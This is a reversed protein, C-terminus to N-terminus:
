MTNSVPRLASTSPVPMDFRLARRMAACLVYPDPDALVLVGGPDWLSVGGSRAPRDLLVRALAARHYRDARRGPPWPVHRGRGPARSVERAHLRVQERSCKVDVPEGRSRGKPGSSNPSAIPWTVPNGCSVVGSCRGGPVPTLRMKSNDIALPRRHGGGCAYVPVEGRLRVTVVSGVPGGPFTALIRSGGAALHAM